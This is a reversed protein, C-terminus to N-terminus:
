SFFPYAAAHTVTPVLVQRHRRYNAHSVFCPVKICTCPKRIIDQHIDADGLELKGKCGHVGGSNVISMNQVIQM